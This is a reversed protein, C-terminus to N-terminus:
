LESVSAIKLEEKDTCMKLANISVRGTEGVALHGISLVNFHELAEMMTVDVKFTKAICMLPYLMPSIILVIIALRWM